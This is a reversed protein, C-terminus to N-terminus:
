TASTVFDMNLPQNRLPLISKRRRLIFNPAPHPQMKRFVKVFSTKYNHQTAHTCGAGGGAGKGGKSM